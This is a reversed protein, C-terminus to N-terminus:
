RRIIITLTCRKLITENRLRRIRIIPCFIHAQSSDESMMKEVNPAEVGFMAYESTCSIELYLLVPHQQTQCVITAGSTTTTRERHGLLQVRTMWSDLNRLRSVHVCQDRSPHQHLFGSRRDSTRGPNHRFLPEAWINADLPQTSSKRVVRSWFLGLLCPSERM